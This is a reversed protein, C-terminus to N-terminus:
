YFIPHLSVGKHQHFQIAPAPIKIHNLAYFLVKLYKNDTEFQSFDIDVSLYLSRAPSLGAAINQEDRAYIMGEAGYGISFALWKWKQEKNGRLLYVPNFSFWYTQGNYDKIVEEVYNSGLLQPRQSAYETRAFSYKIQIRNEQWALQQSLFIASGIANAGVDPWSFGYAESFGDFIEIPFMLGFSMASSIIAAKKESYGAWVMSQKGIGAIHFANFAHGFKDLQKWEPLDNFFAFQGSAQDKYWIQHLGVMGATYSAGAGILLVNRRQTNISDQCIANTNAVLTLIFIINLIASRM